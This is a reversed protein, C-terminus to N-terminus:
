APPLMRLFTAAEKRKVEEWSSIILLFVKKSYETLGNRSGGKLIAIFSVLTVASKFELTVLKFKQRSHLSSSSSKRLKQTKQTSPTVKHMMAEMPMTALMTVTMISLLYSLLRSENILSHTFNMIKTHFFRSQEDDSIVKPPSKLISITCFPNVILTLPAKKREVSERKICICKKTTLDSLCRIPRM